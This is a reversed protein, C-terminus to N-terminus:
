YVKRKRKKIANTFHTLLHDIVAVFMIFHNAMGLLAGFPIM